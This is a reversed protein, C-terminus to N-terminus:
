RQNSVLNKPRVIIQYLKWRYQLQDASFVYRRSMNISGFVPDGILDIFPQPYTYNRDRRGEQALIYVKIMKLHERIMKPDQLWAQIDGAATSPSATVSYDTAPMSSYAHVGDESKAEGATMSWGLIVQMDAVCDLVPIREYAGSIHSVIGKTLVGTRPGCFSPLGTAPTDIFYDARNFPMRPNNTTSVGYLMNIQLGQPDTPLFNANIGSAVYDFYFVGSNDVLIRDDSSNNFNNRISIVKDNTQPTGSTLTVPRSEKTAASYNNYPIYTWRQAAVDRGVSTAKIGIFDSTFNAFGNFGVFARPPPQPAGSDNMKAYNTTDASWNSTLAENYSLTLTSTPLISWFLGFGMQELDHRMMELGIVGEINSEESKSYKLSQTVVTNFTQAAIVMIVIFVGMTVLLEVLTFGKRSTITDTLKV